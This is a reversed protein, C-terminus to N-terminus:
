GVILFASLWSLMLTEFIIAIGILTLTIYVANRSELWFESCFISGGYVKCSFNYSVCTVVFIILAFLVLIQTPLIVLIVNLIGGVKFITILIACTIGLCFARYTLLIFSVFCMIPRCNTVFVVLLFGANVLIRSFLLGWISIDGDLFKRLFSDPIRAVSVDSALRVGAGIGCIIGAVVLVFCVIFWKKNECFGDRLGMKANGWFRFFSFRVMGLKICGM